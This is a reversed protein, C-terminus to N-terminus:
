VGDDGVVFRDGDVVFGGEFVVQMYYVVFGQEVVDEVFEVFVQGVVEGVFVVGVFCYVEFQVEFVEDGDGVVLCQFDWDGVGGVDLLGYVQVQFVDFEVFLQLQYVYVDVIQYM